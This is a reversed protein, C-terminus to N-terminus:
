GRPHSAGEVGALWHRLCRRRCPWAYRGPPRASQRAASTQRCCANGPTLRDLACTPPLMGMAAGGPQPQAQKPPPRSATRGVLPRRSSSSGTYCRALTTGWGPSCATQSWRYCEDPLLTFWPAQLLRVHRQQLSGATNDPREAGGWPRSAAGLPQRSRTTSRLTTANSSAARPPSVLQAACGCGPAQCCPPRADTLSPEAPEPPNPKCDLPSSAACRRALSHSIVQLIRRQAAGFYGLHRDSTRPKAPAEM